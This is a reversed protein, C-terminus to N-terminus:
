GQSCASIRFASSGTLVAIEGECIAASGSGPRRRMPTTVPTWSMRTSTVSSTEDPNDDPSRKPLSTWQLHLQRMLSRTARDKNIPHAPDRDLGAAHTTASVVPWEGAIAPCVARRQGPLLGLPRPWSKGRLALVPLVPWSDKPETAPGAGPRPTVDGATPRSRSRSSM